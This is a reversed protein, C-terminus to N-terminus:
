VKIHFALQCMVFEDIINPNHCCGIIARQIEQLFKKYPAINSLGLPDVPLEPSLFPFGLVAAGPPIREEEFSYQM